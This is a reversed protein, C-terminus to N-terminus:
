FGTLSPDSKNDFCNNRCLSCAVSGNRHFTTGPSQRFTPTVGSLPVASVM